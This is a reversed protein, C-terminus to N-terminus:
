RTRRARRKIDLFGDLRGADSCFRTWAAKFQKMCDARDRGDGQTEVERM